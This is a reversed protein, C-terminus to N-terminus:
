MGTGFTIQTGDVNFTNAKGQVAQFQLDSQMGFDANEFRTSVVADNPFIPDEISGQLMQVERNRHRTQVVHGLNLNSLAFPLLGDLDSGVLFGCVYSLLNADFRSLVTDRFRKILWLQRIALRISRPYLVHTKRTWAVPNYADWEIPKPLTPEGHAGTGFVHSICPMLQIHIDFEARPQMSRHHIMTKAMLALIIGKQYPNNTIGDWFVSGMAVVKAYRLDFQAIPIPERNGHVLKVDAITEGKLRTLDMSMNAETTESREMDAPLSVDLVDLRVLLCKEGIVSLQRLHAYFAQRQGYSSVINDDRLSQEFRDVNDLIGLLALGDLHQDRLFDDFGLGAFHRTM